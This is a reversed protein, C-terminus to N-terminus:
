KKLNDMPVGNAKETKLNLVPDDFTWTGQSNNLATSLLFRGEASLTLTADGMFRQVNPGSKAKMEETLEAHGIWNGTVSREAVPVSAVPRVPRPRACGMAFFVLLLCLGRM